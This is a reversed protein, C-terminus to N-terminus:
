LVGNSFQVGNGSKPPWSGSGSSSTDRRNQTRIRHCNSCVVECKTIENWIKDPDWVLSKAESLNFEKKGRIHDFDMCVSPYIRNCDICPIEKIWNLFEIIIKAHKYNTRRAKSVYYLKNQRYHRRMYKRHCEKCNNNYGNKKTRNVTFANISKTKKCKSCRM